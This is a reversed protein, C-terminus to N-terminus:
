ESRTATHKLHILTDLDTTIEIALDELAEDVNQGQGQLSYILDEDESEYDEETDEEEIPHNSKCDECREDIIVSNEHFERVIYDPIEITATFLNPVTETVTVTLDNDDVFQSLEVANEYPSFLITM